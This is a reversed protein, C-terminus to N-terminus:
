SHTKLQIYAHTFHTQGESNEFVKKADECNLNASNPFYANQKQDVIVMSPIQCLESLGPTGYTYSTHASGVFAIYKGKKAEQEIIQKGYVNMAIMRKAGSSGGFSQYGIKQTALSELGVPRIGAQVAANVLDFYNESGVVQGCGNRLFNELFLSPKKTQYFNDLEPQLTDFCCHELFLTRVGQNYLDSMHNILVQKPMIHKHNEGIVLGKQNKLLSTFLTTIEENSGQFSSLVPLPCQPAPKIELSELKTKWLTVDDKDIPNEITILSQSVSGFGSFITKWGSMFYKGLEPFISIWTNIENETHYVFIGDEEEVINLQHGQAIISKVSEMLKAKIQAKTQDKITVITLEYPVLAPNVKKDVNSINQVNKLENKNKIDSKKDIDDTSEDKTDLTNQLNKSSSKIFHSATSPTFFNTATTSKYESFSEDEVYNNKKIHTVKSKIPENIQKASNNQNFNEKAIDDILM